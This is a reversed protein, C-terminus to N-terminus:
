GFGSDMIWRMMYISIMAGGGKRLASAFNEVHEPSIGQDKAACTGYVEHHISKMREPDDLLRGHFIATGEHNESGLAFSLAVGGGYCWGMAAVKGNVDKRSKFLRHPM